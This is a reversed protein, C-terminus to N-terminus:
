DHFGTNWTDRVYDRCSVERKAKTSDGSNTSTASSPALTPCLEGNCSSWPSDPMDKQLSQLKQCAVGEDGALHRLRAEHFRADDRLTSTTFDTALRHWSAEAAGRDHLATEQLRALMALAPTFRPRQYTGLFESVERVALLRKLHAVATEGQGSRAEIEAAHFLADDFYAGKPYPFRDAVAVYLAVADATKGLQDLRKAREYVVHEELETGALTKEEAALFLIAAEPGNRGEVAALVHLFAARSVGHSPAGRYLAAFEREATAADGGKEAYSAAANKAEAGYPANVDPYNALLFARAGAFDGTRALAQAERLGVYARDRPNKATERARTWAAVAEGFRGASEARRAEAVDVAYAAPKGPGCAALSSFIAFVLIYAALPLRRGM